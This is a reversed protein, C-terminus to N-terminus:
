FTFSYTLGVGFQLGTQITGDRIRTAGYGTYVGMGFRKKKATSVKYSRVATTESYPSDNSIEVFPIPKKFWGQKEEGIVVSYSNKLKLSDIILEQRNMTVKGKVWDNLNFSKSYEPYIYWTGDESASITDHHTVVIDHLITDILTETQFVTVNGSNKLQKQFENVKTQLAMILSDTTKLRLFTKTEQSEFVSIRARNIGDKDKWTKLSDTLVENFAIQEGLQSAKERGRWWFFLLLIALAIIIITKLDFFKKM